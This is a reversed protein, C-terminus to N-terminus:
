REEPIAAHAVEQHGLAFLKNLMYKSDIDQAYVDLYEDQSQSM